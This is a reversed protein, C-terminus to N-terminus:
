QKPKKEKRGGGLCLKPRQMVKGKGAHDNKHTHTTSATHMKTICLGPTSMMITDRSVVTHTM